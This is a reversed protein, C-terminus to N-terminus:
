EIWGQQRLKPKMEDIITKAVQEARGEIKSKGSAEGYVKLRSSV